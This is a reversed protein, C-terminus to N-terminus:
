THQPLVRTFKKALEYLYGVKLANNENDNEIKSSPAVKNGGDHFRIATKVKCSAHRIATDPSSLPSLIVYGRSSQVSAWGELVKEAGTALDKSVHRGLARRSPIDCKYLIAM